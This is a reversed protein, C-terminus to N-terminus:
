ELSRKLWFEGVHLRAPADVEVRDVGAAVFHGAPFVAAFGFGFAQEPAARGLGASGVGTLQDHRVELLGAARRAQGLGPLAEVAAGRLLDTPAARAAVVQAGGVARDHVHARARLADPARREHEALGAGARAAGRAAGAPADRRPRLPRGAARPPMAAHRREAPPAVDALPRVAGGGVGHHAGAPGDAAAM